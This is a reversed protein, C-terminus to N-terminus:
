IASLATRADFRPSLASLKKLTITPKRAAEGCLRGEARLSMTLGQTLACTTLACFPLIAHRPDNKLPPAVPRLKAHAAATLTRQCSIATNACKGLELRM